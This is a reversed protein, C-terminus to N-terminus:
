RSDAVHHSGPHLAPVCDVSPGCVRASYSGCLGRDLDQRQLRVRTRKGVRQRPLCAAGSSSPTPSPRSYYCAVTFRWRGPRSTTRVWEPPRLRFIFSLVYSVLVPLLPRLGTLSPDHPPRLELVMITIIIAIVRDNFAEVRATTM